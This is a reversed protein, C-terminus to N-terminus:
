YSQLPNEVPLQSQYKGPVTRPHARTWLARQQREDMQPVAWLVVVCAVCSTLPLWKWFQCLYSGNVFLCWGGSSLPLRNADVSCGAPHVGAGVQALSQTVLDPVARM